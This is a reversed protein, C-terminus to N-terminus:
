LTDWKVRIGALDRSRDSTVFCYVLVIGFNGSHSPMGARWSKSVSQANPMAGLGRRYSNFFWRATQLWKM